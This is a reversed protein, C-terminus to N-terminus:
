VAWSQPNEKSYFKKKTIEITPLVSPSHHVLISWNVTFTRKHLWGEFLLIMDSISFILNWGLEIRDAIEFPIKQNQSTRAEM